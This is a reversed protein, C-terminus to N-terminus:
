LLTRFSSAPEVAQGVTRRVSRNRRFRYLQNALDNRYEYLAYLVAVGGIGALIAPHLNSTTSTPSGTTPSNSAISRAKSGKAATKSKTSSSKKTAAATSSSKPAPPATIINTTNPTPTTTWQWLGDAYVWAYGDKATSYIDTQVLVNGSPDLLEAKGGDNALSLGTQPAYFARFEHPQLIFQGSPFKFDHMTTTGTRLTFGSLDFPSSNPNYLEVFEDTADSQPSAPNPLLESLQPAALGADAAPMGTDSSTASASLVVSPPSSNSQTLTAPTNTSTSTTSGVASCGPPTATAQWSTGAKYYIQATASSSVGKIDVPDTTKSSWSVQDEPKYGIIGSTQSVGLIQLMGASDKLSFPLKSVWVPGCSAATGVSLLIEQGPQLTVSPLQASSNSIGGNALNFDNFYQLWFNGLQLNSATANHLVLFEDGTIKVQTITLEKALPTDALTVSQLSWSCGVAILM